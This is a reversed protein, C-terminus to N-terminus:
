VKWLEAEPLASLFMDFSALCLPCDLTFPILQSHTHKCNLQEITKEVVQAVQRIAETNSQRSTRMM